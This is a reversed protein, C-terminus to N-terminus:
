DGLIIRMLEEDTLSRVDQGPANVIHELDENTFTTFISTVLRHQEAATRRPRLRAEQWGAALTRRESRTLPHGAAARLHLTLEEATLAEEPGAATELRQLRRRLNM